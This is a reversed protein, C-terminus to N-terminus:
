LLLFCFVLLFADLFLITPKIISFEGQEEAASRPPPFLLPDQNALNEEQRARGLELREEWKQEFAAQSMQIENDSYATQDAGYITGVSSAPSPARLVPSAYDNHHQTPPM